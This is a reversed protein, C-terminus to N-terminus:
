RRWGRVARRTEGEGVDRHVRRRVPRGGDCDPALGSVIIPPREDPLTSVQANEVTYHEGHHSVMKGTWLNRIVEVAEELM